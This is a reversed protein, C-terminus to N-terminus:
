LLRKKIWKMERGYKEKMIAFNLSFRWLRHVEPTFEIGCGAYERDFNWIGAGSSQGACADGRRHAKWEAHNPKREDGARDRGDRGAAGPDTVTLLLNRGHEADPTVRDIRIAYERVETGSVNSLISAKGAQVDGAAGVPLAPIKPVECLTGFIGCETNVDVMGLCRTM